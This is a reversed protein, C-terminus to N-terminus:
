SGSEDGTGRHYWTITMEIYSFHIKWQITSFKNKHTERILM